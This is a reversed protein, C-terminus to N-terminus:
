IKFKHIKKSDSLLQKEIFTVNNEKDVLILSTVRSGYGRESIDVNICALKSHYSEMQSKEGAQKIMQEDPHHSTKDTMMEFLHEILENENDKKEGILEELKKTGFVTKQYPCPKPHNSLGHFGANLNVPGYSDKIVCGELGRCYYQGEYSGEPNPDLILLNFPSYKTDSEALKTLYEKSDKEKLANIVLFGRGAGPSSKGAYINTLLSVRGDKNMGLWTGGEKGPEQDRGALIDGEWDCQSTPRKFFEDRNMVLILKYKDNQTDESIYFFTICM